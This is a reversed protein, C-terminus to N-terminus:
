KSIRYQTGSRSTESETITDICFFLLTLGCLYKAIKCYPKGRTARLSRCIEKKTPDRDLIALFTDLASEDEDIKGELKQLLERSRELVTSSSNTAKQWALNDILGKSYLSTGLGGPDTIVTELDKLHKLFAGHHARSRDAM